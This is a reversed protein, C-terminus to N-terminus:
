SFGTLAFRRVDQQPDGSRQLASDVSLSGYRHRFFLGNLSRAAVLALSLRWARLSALEHALLDVVDAFALV